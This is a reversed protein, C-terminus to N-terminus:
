VSLGITYLTCMGIFLCTEIIFVLYNYESIGETDM